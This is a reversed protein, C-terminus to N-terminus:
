DSRDILEVCRLLLSMCSLAFSRRLRRSDLSGSRRRCALPSVHNSSWVIQICKPIRQAKLAVLVIASLRKVTPEPVGLTNVKRRYREVETLRNASAPRTAHVIWSLVQKALKAGDVGQEEIREMADHYAQDYADSSARLNQLAIQIDDETTKEM